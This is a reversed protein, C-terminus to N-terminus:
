SVAEGAGFLKLFAEVCDAVHADLDHSDAPDGLGLTAQFFIDGRLLTCFRTAAAEADRFRLHGDARARDLYARIAANLRAPGEEYYLAVMKPHRDANAALLRFVNIADPSLILRMYQRGIMSLTELVSHDAGYRLPDEPFYEAVKQAIVARFLREKNEFHGYVTQKSVGARRAVADMSTREFGESLFLDGAAELIARHKDASRPRGRGNRPKTEHNEKLAITAM